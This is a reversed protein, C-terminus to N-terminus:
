GAIHRYKEFQLEILALRAEFNVPEAADLLPATLPDFSSNQFELSLSMRPIDSKGTAAKSWHYLEQTWGLVAGSPAPLEKGDALDIEDVNSITDKYKAEITKPLVVMCGNDITADNLPVWLSLSVLLNSDDDLPFVTQAQCDQHPSWGVSGANIDLHWAWFNPLLAFDDGLFNSILQQLGAFVFWAEDYLYIYVPPHNANKLAWMGERLKEIMSPSIVSPLKFYGERHLQCSAEEIMVGNLEAIQDKAFESGISLMPALDQWYKSQSQEASLQM